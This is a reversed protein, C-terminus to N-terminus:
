VRKEPAAGQQGEERPVHSEAPHTGKTSQGCTCAVERATLPPSDGATLLSEAPACELSESNPHTTLQRRAGILPVPDYGGRSWPACRVLRWLTLWGGKWAGHENLAEVAYESCSPYFRCCSGLFPSICLQYLRIILLFVVKLPQVHALGSTRKKLPSNKM